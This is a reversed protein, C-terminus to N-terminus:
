GWHQVKNELDHVAATKETTDPTGIYLYGILSENAQLGLQEKVYVDEAMAGTRWIGGYGLADAALLINLAACGATIHQELEPVKVNEEVTSIVVIIMPARLAKSKIEDLRMSQIGPSRRALGEAFVDGLRELGQGQIVLFRWPRILGHDPARSAAKFIEALEQDSPAPKELKKHSQRQQLFELLTSM